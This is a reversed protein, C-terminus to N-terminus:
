LVFKTGDGTGHPHWSDVGLIVRQGHRLALLAMLEM